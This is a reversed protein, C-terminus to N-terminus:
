QFSPSFQRLHECNHLFINKHAWLCLCVMLKGSIFDRVSLHDHRIQGLKGRHQSSCRGALVFFFFVFVILKAMEFCFPPFLSIYSFFFFFLLSLSLSIPMNKKFNDVNRLQVWWLLQALCWRNSKATWLSMEKRYVATKPSSCLFKVKKSQAHFYFFWSSKLLWSFFHTASIPMKNRAGTQFAIQYCNGRLSVVHCCRVVPCNSRLFFALEYHRLVGCLNGVSISAFEGKQFDDLLDKTRLPASIVLDDFSDNNVDM